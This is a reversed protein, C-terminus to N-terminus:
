KASNRKYVFFDCFGKDSKQTSFLEFEKANEKVWTSFKRHRVHYKQKADLNWAYIIVFQKSSALLTQMYHQYVDDEILHYIVDLSLSLDAKANPKTLPIENGNMLVFSKTKDDKFLERCTAVITASVDYGIYNTCNLLALQNGDGCGFEVVTQIHHESIFKNLYDAKYVAKEGYSGAGSNGGTRYRNEWYNKSGKFFINKFINRIM